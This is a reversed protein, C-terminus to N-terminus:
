AFREMQGLDVTGGPVLHALSESLRATLLAGFISVGIMGGCQRIFMVTSTAVGIQNDPAASQSVLNFLSQSPGLGIGMIFLRWTVDWTGAESTLQSMLFVGAIQVLAGGIMMGKYKGTRTVY